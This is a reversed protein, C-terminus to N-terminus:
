CMDDLPAALHAFLDMCPLRCWHCVKRAALMMRARHAERTNKLVLLQNFCACSRASLLIRKMWHYDRHTIITVIDGQCNLNNNKLLIDYM